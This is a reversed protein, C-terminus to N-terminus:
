RGDEGAAGSQREAVAGTGAGCRVQDHRRPGHRPGHLSPLDAGIVYFPLNRQAANHLAACLAALVDEGADQMEDIFVAM